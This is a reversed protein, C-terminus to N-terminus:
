QSVPAPCWTGGAMGYTADCCDVIGDKDEDIFLSMSYPNRLKVATSYRSTLKEYRDPAMSNGTKPTIRAYEVNIKVIWVCMATHSYIPPTDDITANDISNFCDFTGASAGPQCFQVEFKRIDTYNDTLKYMGQTLSDCSTGAGPTTGTEIYGPVYNAAFPNNADSPPVFRYCALDYATDANGPAYADMNQMYRVFHFYISTSGDSIHRFDDSGASRFDDAIQSVIQEVRSQAFNERSVDTVIKATNTLLHSIAITIIVILWLVVMLEVLSYGAQSRVYRKNNIGDM